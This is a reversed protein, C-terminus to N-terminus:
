SHVLHSVIAEWGSGLDPTLCLLSTRSSLLEHYVVLQIDRVEVQGVSPKGPSREWGELANGKREIESPQLRRHPSHSIAKGERSGRRVYM